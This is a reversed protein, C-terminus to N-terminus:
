ILNEKFLWQKTENDAKTTSKEIHKYRLCSVITALVAKKLAKKLNVPM